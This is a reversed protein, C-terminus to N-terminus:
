GCAVGRWAVESCEAECWLVASLRVGRWAVARCEVACWGVYAQLICAVQSFHMGGGGGGGGGCAGVGPLLRKGQFPPGSTM